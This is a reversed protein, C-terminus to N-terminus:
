AETPVNLAWPNTHVYTGKYTRPSYGLRYAFVNVIFDLTLKHPDRVTHVKSVKTKVKAEFGKSVKTKVVM